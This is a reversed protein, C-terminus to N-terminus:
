QYTEGEGIEILNFDRRDEYKYPGDCLKAAHNAPRSFYIKEKNMNIYTNNKALVQHREYWWEPSELLCTPGFQKTRRIPYTGYARIAVDKHKSASTKESIFTNNEVLTLLTKRGDLSDWYDQTWFSSQAKIPNQLDGDQPLYAPPDDCGFIGRRGSVMLMWGSAYGTEEPRWIHFTNGKITNQSCSVVNVLTNGFLQTYSPDTELTKYFRNNILINKNATSKFGESWAMSHVLNDVLTLEIESKGPVGRHMYWGHHANGQGSHSVENGCFQLKSGKASDEPEIGTVTFANSMTHHIYSNRVIGMGWQPMIVATGYGDIHLNEVLLKSDQEGPSTLFDGGFGKEITGDRKISRCYFRPQENNPGPIGKLTLQKVARNRNNRLNDCQITETNWPIEIVGGEPNIKKLRKLAAQLKEKNQLIVKTSNEDHIPECVGAVAYNGLPPFPPKYVVEPVVYEQHKKKQRTLSSKETHPDKNATDASINSNNSSEGQALLCNSLILVVLVPVSFKM